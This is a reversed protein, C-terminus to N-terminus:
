FMVVGPSDLAQSPNPEIASYVAEREKQGRRDKGCWDMVVNDMSGTLASCQPAWTEGLVM